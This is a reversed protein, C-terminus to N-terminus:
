ESSGAAELADERRLFARMETGKGGRLRWLHFVAQEVILGTSTATGRFRVTVLTAVGLDEVELVDATFGELITPIEEVLLNWIEDPGQYIPKEVLPVLSSRWTMDTDIVAKFESEDGRRFAEYAERVRKVNEQSM